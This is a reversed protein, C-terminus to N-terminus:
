KATQTAKVKDNFFVPPSYSFVYLFAFYRLTVFGYVESLSQTSIFGTDLLTVAFIKTLKSELTPLTMAALVMIALILAYNGCQM